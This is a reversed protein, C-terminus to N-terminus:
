EPLPPALSALHNFARRLVAVEEPDRRAVFSGSFYAPGLRDVFGPTARLLHVTGLRLAGGCSAGGPAKSPMFFGGGGYLGMEGNALVLIRIMATSATTAIPTRGARPRMFMHVHVIVGVHQGADGGGRWIEEPLDTLIFEAHTSATTDYVRVTPALPLLGAEEGRSVMRMAGASGTVGCGAGALCLAGLWLRGLVGPVRM